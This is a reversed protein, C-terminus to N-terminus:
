YLTPKLFFAALLESLPALLEAPSCCLGNVCALMTVNAVLGAIAAAVLAALDAAAAAAEATQGTYYPRCPPFAFAALTAEPALILCHSCGREADGAPARGSGLARSVSHGGRQPLSCSHFRM